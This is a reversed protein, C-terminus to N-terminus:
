STDNLWQHSMYICEAHLYHNWEPIIRLAEKPEYELLCISCNYYSPNLLRRSEGLFTKPYNEVTAGELGM